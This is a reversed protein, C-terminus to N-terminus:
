RQAEERDTRLAEFAQQLQYSDIEYRSPMRWGSAKRRGHCGGCVLLYTRPDVLWEDPIGTPKDPTPVTTGCTSCKRTDAPHLEAVTQEVTRAFMKSYGFSLPVRQDDDAKVYADLIARKIAEYEGLELTTQMATRLTTNM